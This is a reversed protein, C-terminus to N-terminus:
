KSASKGAKRRIVEDTYKIGKGGYPEPKRFSKIKSAFQGVKQKDIGKIILQTPKPVEVKFESPVELEIKHSLGLSFVLINGQLKVNYGVGNIELEKKFGKEVGEIMGNILSNTTGHLMKTQRNDNDRTVKIVGDENKITILNSFTKKLEGLPGKVTVVNGEIVVEIGSPIQLERKGVRSM